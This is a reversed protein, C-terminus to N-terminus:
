KRGKEKELCITTSGPLVLDSITSSLSFREKEPLGEPEKKKGGAQFIARHKRNLTVAPARVHLQIQGGDILPFFERGVCDNGEGKGRKKKWGAVVARPLLHLLLLLLNLMYMGATARLRTGIRREEERLLQRPCTMLTSVHTRLLCGITIPTCTRSL